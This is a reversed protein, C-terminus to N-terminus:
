KAYRGLPNSHSFRRCSPGRCSLLQQLQNHFYEKESATLYKVRNQTEFPDPFLILVKIYKIMTVFLYVNVFYRRRTM